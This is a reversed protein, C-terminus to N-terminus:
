NQRPDAAWDVRKGGGPLAKDPRPGKLVTGSPKREREWGVLGEALGLTMVSKGEGWRRTKGPNNQGAGTGSEDSLPTKLYFGVELLAQHGLCPPDGLDGVQSLFGCFKPPVELVLREEM